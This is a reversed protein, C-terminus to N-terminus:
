VDQINKHILHAIADWSFKKEVLNRGNKGMKKYEEGSMSLISDIASYLEELNESNVVFGCHDESTFEM